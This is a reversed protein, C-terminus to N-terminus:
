AEHRQEIRKANFAVGPGLHSIIQLEEETLQTAEVEGHCRVKYLHNLSLHDFTTMIEDVPKGCVACMPKNM